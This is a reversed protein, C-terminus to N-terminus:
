TSRTFGTETRSTVAQPIQDTRSLTRVLHLGIPAVEVAVAGMHWAATGNVRVDAAGDAPMAPAIAPAM